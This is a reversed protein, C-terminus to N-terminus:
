DDLGNLKDIREAHNNLISRLRMFEAAAGGAIVGIAVSAGVYEALAWAVVFGILYASGERM